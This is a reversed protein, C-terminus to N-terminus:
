LLHLEELPARRGLQLGLGVVRGGEMGLGHVRAGRVRGVNVHPARLRLPRQRIFDAGRREAGRPPHRLRPDHVLTVRKGDARHPQVLQGM